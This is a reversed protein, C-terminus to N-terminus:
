AFNESFCVNRVYTHTDLTLLTLNESYKACTSFLHTRNYAFLNLLEKNVFKCFVILALTPDLVAAVDLISIKTIITLPQFGNVKIVFLEM